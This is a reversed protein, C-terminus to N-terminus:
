KRALWLIFKGNQALREVAPFNRRLVPGYDLHRNAVLCLSSGSDLHNGCQGLLRKGVFEDVAHQSHFPPNCLVLEAREGSYELLGDGHFFSFSGPNEPYLRQCNDRASALAMASEDCFAVRQALRLNHAALGIIGNGCALDIASGVADLRHLHQLLFRTGMDLQTGSFVNPLNRLEADLEQCYYSSAGPPPPCPGTRRIAEFLRAKRRGRHRRTPGVYQEILKATHPSLHKDMGAALVTAGEPLLQALTGLQYEFYPLQKPVRMLVASFEGLPRETSWTIPIPQRDNSELNARVAIAALASDTWLGAAQLPVCLAGQEDNVLLTVGPGLSLERAAELLLSDASCWAQLPENRRTPYRSLIFNGYPTAFENSAAAV